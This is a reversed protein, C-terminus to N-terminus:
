PREVAKPVPAPVPVPVPQTALGCVAIDIDAGTPLRTDIYTVLPERGQAPAYLYADIVCRGSAFQMKRVTRDKIDLRPQGLRDVLHRADVGILGQARGYQSAMPMVPPPAVSRVGAGSEEGCGSLLAISGLMCALALRHHLPGMM